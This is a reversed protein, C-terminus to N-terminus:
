ITFETFKIFHAYLLAQPWQDASELHVPFSFNWWFLVIQGISCFHLTGQDETQVPNKAVTSHVMSICTVYHVASRFIKVCVDVRPLKQLHLLHDLSAQSMFQRYRSRTATVPKWVLLQRCGQDRRHCSNGTLRMRLATISFMALSQDWEVAHHMWGHVGDSQWRLRM